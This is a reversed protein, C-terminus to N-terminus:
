KRGGTLAILFVVVILLGGGIAAIMGWNVPAQQQVVTTQKPKNLAGLIGSATGGLSGIADTWNNLASGEGNM